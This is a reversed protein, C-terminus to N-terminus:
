FILTTIRFGEGETMRLMAFFRRTQSLIFEAFFRYAYLVNNYHVISLNKPLLRLIVYM